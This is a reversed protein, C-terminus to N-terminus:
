KRRLNVVDDGSGTSWKKMCDVMFEVFAVVDEGDEGGDAAAAAAPEVLVISSCKAWVICVNSWNVVM